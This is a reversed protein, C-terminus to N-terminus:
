WWLKKIVKFYYNSMTFYNLYLKRVNQEIKKINAQNKELYKDIHKEINKVDSFPVILFLDNYNIEDQFPLKAWTDIYLPIKWASLIEYHRVSYNGYWRISLSFTSSLLNLLYEKRFSSSNELTLAHKRQIFNFKCKKMRSLYKVVKWRYYNWKWANTLMQYLWTNWIKLLIYKIIRLSSITWITMSIVYKVFSKIDLFKSYGCFWVSVRDYPKLILKMEGVESCVDHPFPPLCFENSPNDKKTSRKFWIINSSINIYDDIEWYDFVITKKWYKSALEVYKGLEKSLELSFYKPYVFYDSNQMSSEILYEKWQSFWEKIQGKDEWWIDFDPEWLIPALFSVYKDNILWRDFYVKM